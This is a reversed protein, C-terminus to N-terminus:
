NLCITEGQLRTECNGRRCASVSCCTIGSRGASPDYAPPFTVGPCVKWQFERPARSLSPFRDGHQMKEGATRAAPTVQPCIVRKFAEAEDILKIM